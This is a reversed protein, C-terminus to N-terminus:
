YDDGKTFNEVGSSPKIMITHFFRAVKSEKAELTTDAALILKADRLINLGMLHKDEGLLNLQNRTFAFGYFNKDITSL